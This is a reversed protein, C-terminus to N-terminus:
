WLIIIFPFLLKVTFSCHVVKTLYLSYRWHHSLDFNHAVQCSITTLVYCWKQSIRALSAHDSDLWISVDPLILNLSMRYFLQCTIKLLIWPWLILLSFFQKFNFFVLFVHGSCITDSEPSSPTHTHTHTHTHTNVNIINPCKSFSPHLRLIVHYYDILTLKRIKNITNHLHLHIKKKLSKICM